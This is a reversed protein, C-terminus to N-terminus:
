RGFSAEIQIYKGGINKLWRFFGDTADLARDSGIANSKFVYPPLDRRNTKVGGVARIFDGLLLRHIRNDFVYFISYYSAGRDISPPEKDPLAFVSCGKELATNLRVIDKAVFEIESDDMIIPNKEYVENFEKIKKKIEAKVYNVDLM